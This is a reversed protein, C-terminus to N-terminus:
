DFKKQKHFQIHITALHLYTFTYVHSLTTFSFLLFVLASCDIATDWIACEYPTLITGYNFLFFDLMKCVLEIQKAFSFEVRLCVSLLTCTSLDM